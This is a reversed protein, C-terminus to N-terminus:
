PSTCGQEAPRIMRGLAGMSHPLAVSLTVPAPVYMCWHGCGLSSPAVCGTLPGHVTKSHVPGAQHSHPCVDEGLRDGRRVQQM